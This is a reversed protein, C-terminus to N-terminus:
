YARTRFLLLAAVAPLVATVLCVGIELAPFGTGFYAPRSAWYTALSWDQWGPVYGPLGAVLAVLMAGVVPRLVDAFLVSLLTAVGLIALMGLWLLLTSLLVGGAPQPHGITAATLLLGLGGLGAVAGLTGASVLYKTLLVQDRSLPRSLLLFITGKSVEGAILSGGLVAALPVLILPANKPFWNAWAWLDFNQLSATLAARDAPALPARDLTASLSQVWVYSYTILIAAALTILGGVIAKWRADVLEKAIM